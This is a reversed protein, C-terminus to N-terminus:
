ILNDNVRMSACLMGHATIFHFCNKKARLSPIQTITLYNIHCIQASM